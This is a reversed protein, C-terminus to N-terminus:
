APVLILAVWPLFTLMTRISAEDTTYFDAVLFVFASLTALFGLQILYSLPSFLLLRLEHRFTGLIGNLWTPVTIKSFSTESNM